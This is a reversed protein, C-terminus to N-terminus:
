QVEIAGLRSLGTLAERLERRGGPELAPRLTELPLPSSLLSLLDCAVSSVEAEIAGMGQEIFAVARPRPVLARREPRRGLLLAARIAGVDHELPLLAVRRALAVTGKMEHPRLPRASPELFLSGEPLLDAELGDECALGHCRRPFGISLVYEYAALALLWSPVPTERAREVLWGLLVTGKEDEGERAEYFPSALVRRTVELTSERFVRAIGELTAPLRRRWWRDRIMEAQRTSVALLRGADVTRIVSLDERALPPSRNRAAPDRLARDLWRIQALLSV